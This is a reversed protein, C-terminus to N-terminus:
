RLERKAWEIYTLNETFLFSNEQLDIILEEITFPRFGFPPMSNAVKEFENTGLIKFFRKTDKNSRILKNLYIKATKTDNLKYYLVSLPLLFMTESTEDFKKYLALAKEELELYAYIHMLSHRIGLNDSACLRLMKEGQEVARTMMGCEVLADFYHHLVRMYPRTELVLWFEGEYEKTLYGGDEMLKEAHNVVIQAKKLNDISDTASYDAVFLEADLNDPDLKLAKRAFKLGDELSKAKGALEMFDESTKADKETMAKLPKQNHEKMFQDLLANIEEESADDSSHENIFNILEKIDKDNQM